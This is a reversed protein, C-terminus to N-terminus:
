IIINNFRNIELVIIKPPFRLMAQTVPPPISPHTTPIPTSRHAQSANYEASEGLLLGEVAAEVKHLKARTGPSSQSTAKVAAVFPDSFAKLFICM